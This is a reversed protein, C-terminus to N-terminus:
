KNRNIDMTIEEVINNLISVVATSSITAGTIAQVDTEKKSKEDKVIGIPIDGGLKLNKVQEKFPEEGVRTGLGPTESSELVEMGLFSKLNKDLGVILKIKGQFGNGEGVLAYGITNKNKDEGKYITITETKKIEKYSKVKPLVKLIANQLEKQQNEYIPTKTFNYMVSLSVASFLCVAGLVIFMQLHEIKM